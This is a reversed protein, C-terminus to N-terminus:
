KQIMRREQLTLRKYDLGSLNKNAIFIGQDKLKQQVTKNDMLQTLLQEQMKVVEVSMEKSGVVGFKTSPTSFNPFRPVNSIPLHDSFNAVIKILGNDLQGKVATYPAIVYSIHGGILSIVAPGVGKFNVDIGQRSDLHLMLNKTVYSNGLAGSGFSIKNYKIDEIVQDLTKTNNNSTLLLLPSEGILKIYNITSIDYKIAETPLTDLYVLQSQSSLCFTNRENAKLCENMAIVGGAGSKSYITATHGLEKLGEELIMGVTHQGGGPPFGVFITYKEAYALNTFTILILLIFKKM